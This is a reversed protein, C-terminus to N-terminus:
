LYPTNAPLWDFYTLYYFNPNNCLFSDREQTFNYYYFFLEFYRGM